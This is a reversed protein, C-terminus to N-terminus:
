LKLNFKRLLGLLDALADSAAQQALQSKALAETPDKTGAARLAIVAQTADIATLMASQYKDLADAVAEEQAVPPHFQAVYDGWATMAEEVTVAAASEVNYATRQPTSHCGVVSYALCSLLLMLVLPVRPGPTSDGAGGDHDKAALGMLFSGLAALLNSWSAHPNALAVATMLGALTTKWNKM